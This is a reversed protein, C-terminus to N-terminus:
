INDDYYDSSPHRRWETLVNFIPPSANDFFTAASHSKNDRRWSDVFMPTINLHVLRGNYIIINYEQQVYIRVSRYIHTHKSKYVRTIIRAHQVIVRANRTERRSQSVSRDKFYTVLVNFFFFGRSIPARPRVHSVYVYATYFTTNQREYSRTM